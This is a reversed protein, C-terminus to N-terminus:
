RDAPTGSPRVGSAVPQPATATEGAGAKRVVGMGVATLALGVALMSWGVAANGSILFIV